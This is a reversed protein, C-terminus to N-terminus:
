SGLKTRQLLENMALELPGTLVGNSAYHALAQKAENRVHYGHESPGSIHHPEIVHKQVVRLIDTKHISSAIPGRLLNLEAVTKFGAAEKPVFKRVLHDFDARLDVRTYARKGAKVREGNVVARSSSDYVCKDNFRAEGFNQCSELRANQFRCGEFSTESNFACNAFTVNEFICELFTIRSFDARNIPGSFALQFFKANPFLEVLAGVKERRDAGSPFDLANALLAITTTLLRTKHAITASDAASATALLRAILKRLSDLRSVRDVQAFLQRVVATAVDFQLAPDWGPMSAFRALGAGEELRSLHILKTGLLSYRVQDQVFNWEDKSAL